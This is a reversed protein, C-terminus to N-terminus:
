KPVSNTMGLSERMAFGRLVEAQVGPDPDNAASALTEFAMYNTAHDAAARVAARRLIPDWPFPADPYAFRHLVSWASPAITHNTETTCEILIPIAPLANSGLYTMRHLAGLVSLKRWAPENTKALIALMPPLASKGVMALSYIALNAKDASPGQAIRSLEPVSERAQEGLMAFGSQAMQEKKWRELSFHKVAFTCGMWGPHGAYIVQIKQRWRADKYEIWKLLFPVGNTGIARVAEGNEPRGDASPDLWESLKKGKYEPEKEGPWFAIGLVVV